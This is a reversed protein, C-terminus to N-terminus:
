PLSYTEGMSWQTTIWSVDSAGDLSMDSEQDMPPDYKRQVALWIAYTDHVNILDLRVVPGTLAALWTCNQTFCYMNQKLLVMFMCLMCLCAMSYMNIIKLKKFINSLLVSILYVTTSFTFYRKKNQSWIIKTELRKQIQPKWPTTYDVLWAPTFNTISCNEM